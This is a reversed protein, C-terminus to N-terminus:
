GITEIASGIGIRGDTLVDARLGGRHILGRLVGKTTLRELHACPECLRQGFCEVDGVRFRRGVLANLDVDRTIVNRRAEAYGLRRDETLVLEDLVEAQILTLDYGGGSGARPTFTGAKAAYRDGELGRGALAQAEEVLQMPGTATSAVAIAEVTGYLPALPAPAALAPDFNAIVYGKEVPLDLSAQGLLTPDQPSLVVGSPTGFMLVATRDHQGASRPSQTGLLAIWYGPWNFKAADAIPVLGLGKGALWNRWRTVASPLELRPLPMGTVPTEIASALCAAFSRTLVPLDPDEPLAVDLV